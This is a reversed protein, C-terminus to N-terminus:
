GGPHRRASTRFWVEPLNKPGYRYGDAVLKADALVGKPSFTRQSMTTFVTLFQNWPVGAVIGAVLLAGTVDMHQMGITDRVRLAELDVPPTNPDFSRLASPKVDTNTVGPGEPTFGSTFEESQHHVSHTAWFM